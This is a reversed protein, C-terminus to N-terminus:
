TRGESFSDSNMHIIQDAIEYPNLPFCNYSNDYIFLLTKENVQFRGYGWQKPNKQWIRNKVWIKYNNYPTKVFVPRALRPLRPTKETDVIFVPCHYDDKGTHLQYILVNTAALYSNSTQDPFIFVSKPLRTYQSYLEPQNYNGDKEYPAFQSFQYYFTGDPVYIGATEWYAPARYHTNDTEYNRPIVSYLINAALFGAILTAGTLKSLIAM